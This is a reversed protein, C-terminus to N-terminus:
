NFRYKPIPIQLSHWLGPHIEFGFELNASLGEDIYSWYYINGGDNKGRRVVNCIAGARFLDSLMQKLENDTEFFEYEKNKNKAALYTFSRKGLSALFTFYKDLKENDVHGVLHYKIERKLYKSYKAETKEFAYSEFRELNNGFDEQIYSLMRIIDRPRGLTRHIIYIKFYEGSIYEPIIEGLIADTSKHKFYDDSKRVKHALM